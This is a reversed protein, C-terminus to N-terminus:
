IDTICSVLLHPWPYKVAPLGPNPPFLTQVSFLNLNHTLAHHFRPAWGERTPLLSEMKQVCLHTSCALEHTYLYKMWIQLAYHRENIHKNHHICIHTYTDHSMWTNRSEEHTYLIKNMNTARLTTGVYIYQSENRYTYIYIYIYWSEHSINMYAHMYRSENMYQVVKWAHRTIWEYEVRTIYNMGIHITVWEYLINIYIMVWEHIARNKMRTFYDMWIQLAYHLENMYTDHSMWICRYM